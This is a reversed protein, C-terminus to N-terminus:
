KNYDVYLNLHNASYKCQRFKIHSSLFTESLKSSYLVMSQKYVYFDGTIASLYFVTSNFNLVIKNYFM